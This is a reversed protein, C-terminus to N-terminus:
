RARQTKEARRIRLPFRRLPPVAPEFVFFRKSIRMTSKIVGPILPTLHCAARRSISALMEIMM